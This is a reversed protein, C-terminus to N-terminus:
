SDSGEKKAGDARSKAEMARAHLDDAIAGARQALRELFDAASSGGGPAATARETEVRRWEDRVAGVTTTVLGRLTAWADALQRRADVNESRLEAATERLRAAGTAAFDKLVDVAPDLQSQLWAVAREHDVECGALAGEAVEARRGSRTRIAFDGPPLRVDDSVLFWRTGSEDSWLTERRLEARVSSKSTSM